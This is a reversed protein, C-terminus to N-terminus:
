MGLGFGVPWLPGESSALLASRPVQAMSRPWAFSLKGSFPAQGCLVEALGEGESGPLWAAVVADCQDLVEGLLLPRGSYLILVLKECRARVRRVLAVDSASLALNGRDGVGEAYPPEALVVIGVEAMADGDFQGDAAYALDGGLTSHLAKLLTSGTTLPGVQGMWEITWGGCQLGLDDAAQGAVCITALEPSLPLAGNENKLLVASKRVAERALARHEASGITDLRTAPMLPQEFLGCEYKVQLIRNVADDIRDMPVYGKEVADTLTAIFLHYDFPVMVMDIGANISKVVCTYYDPDIQNIAQWDSILFGSFGLERKLVETLLHHNAHMKVAQKDAGQVSSFSVMVNRCGAAVAAAYPPLHIARLSAEDINAVGQDIGIKRDPEGWLEDQAGFRSVSGWTTGGDALYHKASALVAEAAALDTGQLGRIYAAGLESVIDTEESYGEYTRGWRIDQPVTVAPAFNWKVSTAAVEVATARGIREVLGADRTCGLGINHPYITAGKVNNHGHVADVGYLLPIRLRTALAAEEFTRVMAHWDQPTNPTPYGGGGSLVSGIFSRTVDEPRLSNKEVQTMQGVKEELTMDALLAAVNTFPPHAAPSTAMTKDM